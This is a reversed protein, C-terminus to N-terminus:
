AADRRLDRDAVSPDVGAEERYGTMLEEATRGREYQEASRSRAIDSTPRPAPDGAAAEGERRPRRPSSRARTAGDAGARASAARPEARHGADRGGDEYFGSPASGWPRAVTIQVHDVWTRDWIPEFITDAFRLAFVNQVTDKGLYHEIRYVQSERVGRAGRRRTGPGSGVDHGYPKEIVLRSFARGDIEVGLAAVIEESYPPTALYFLRNGATGATKDLEALVEQLAGYTRPEAYGGRVFRLQDLLRPPLAAVDSVVQRFAEDDLDSRGVGVVSFEDPLRKHRALNALGPLLKRRALDGSAGFIVLTSPPAKRDDVNSPDETMTAVQRPAGDAPHDTM